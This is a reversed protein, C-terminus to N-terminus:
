RHSVEGTRVVGPPAIYFGNNNIWKAVPYDDENIALAEKYYPQNTLPLMDRTEVGNAELYNM